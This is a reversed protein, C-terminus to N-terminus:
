IFFPFSGFKSAFSFSSAKIEKLSNDNINGIVLEDILHPDIETKAILEKVIVAGLDDASVGAMDTGAKCFPSRIGDVIALREKM